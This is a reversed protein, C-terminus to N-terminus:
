SEGMFESIGEAKLYNVIKEAYLSSESINFSKTYLPTLNTPYFNNRPKGNKLDYDLWVGATENWLVEDIAQQYTDAIHRFHKAKQFYFFYCFCKIIILSLNKKEKKKRSLNYLYFFFFDITIDVM